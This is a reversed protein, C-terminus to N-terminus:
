IYSLVLVEGIWWLYGVQIIKEKLGALNYDHDIADMEGKEFGLKRALDRWHSGVLRSMTDINGDDLM